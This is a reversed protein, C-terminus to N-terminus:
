DETYQGLQGLLAHEPAYASASNFLYTSRVITVGSSGPCILRTPVGGFRLLEGDNRRPDAKSAKAEVSV